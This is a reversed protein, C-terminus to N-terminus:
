EGSPRGAAAAACAPAVWLAMTLRHPQLHLRFWRLADRRVGGAGRPRPDVGAERATPDVLSVHHSAERRAASVGLLSRDPDHPVRDALLKLRPVALHPQSGDHLVQHADIKM